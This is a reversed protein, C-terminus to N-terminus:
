CTGASGPMRGGRAAYEPHVRAVWEASTETLPLRDGNWCPFEGARMADLYATGDEDSPEPLLRMFAYLADTLEQRLSLDGDQSYHGAALRRALDAFSFIQGATLTLTYASTVAGAACAPAPTEPATVKAM